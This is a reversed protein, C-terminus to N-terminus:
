GDGPMLPCPPSNAVGILLTLRGKRSYPTSCAAATLSAQKM